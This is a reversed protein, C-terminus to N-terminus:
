PEITRIHHTHGPKMYDVIERLLRREEVTLARDVEVDFSYLSAEDDTGLYTGIGLEDDGLIWSDSDHFEILIAELGLFFRLVSVIGPETGKLKYISVLVKALKRKQNLTLDFAFPNALDELMADVFSEPARDIDFIEVWRDVDALLWAVVENVINSFRLLDQSADVDRNWQAFMRYLDFKRRAPIAPQYGIFTTTAAM